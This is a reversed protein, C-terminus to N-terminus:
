IVKGERIIEITGNEYGLAMFGRRSLAMVSMSRDQIEAFPSRVGQEYVGWALFRKLWSVDFVRGNEKKKALIKLDRWNHVHIKNKGCTIIHRGDPSFSVFDVEHRPFFEISGKTLLNKMEVFNRNFRGCMTLYKEDPSFSVFYIDLNLRSFETLKKRTVIDWVVATWNILTSALNRGSPSFSISVINDFHMFRALKKGTAINWIDANKCIGTALYRGSPSFAVSGVTSGDSLEHIKRETWVNWVSGSFLSGSALLEGSPSFSLSRVNGKEKMNQLMIMLKYVRQGRM